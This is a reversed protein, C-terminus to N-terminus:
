ATVLLYIALAFGCAGVLGRLVRVPLRRAVTPGILGGLVAGLGLPWMAHWVVTGVVAFLAAPLVDSCALIVNKLSNARHLVPENTVLLLAMLLIGSGAGFYGNYLAVGAGALAVIYGPLPRGRRLQWRSIAPQVLLLVSGAAVLFPVIWDFLSGPTVVLLAAGALSLGVTAPVWRLLTGRHGGIDPGARSASSLGSGLLAVSNTVNAALPPIGVALLAPYAILSTIGGASGIIGAVTGACGLFVQDVASSV